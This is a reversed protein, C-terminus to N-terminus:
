FGGGLIYLAEAKASAIVFGFFSFFSAEANYCRRFPFCPHVNRPPDSDCRDPLQFLDERIRTHPSTLARPLQKIVDLVSMNIALATVIFSSLLLRLLFFLRIFFRRGRPVLSM